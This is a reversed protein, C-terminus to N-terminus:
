QHASEHATVLFAVNSQPDSRTLFGIGESFTINTPFGQAYTSLDPFESLKLEQWPYAYFWESYYKRSADLAEGIEDINYAHGPHYFVATGQGRREAWKGAVVNFFRVPQDTQWEVTRRGNAVEDKQLTGVSNVTYEEPATIRLRVPFPTGTGFAPDTLG